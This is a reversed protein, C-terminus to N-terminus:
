LIQVLSVRAYLDIRKGYHHEWDLWRMGRVANSSFQWNNPLGFERFSSSTVDSALNMKALNFVVSPAYMFIPVNTFVQKNSHEHCVLCDNWSKHQSLCFLWTCTKCQPIYATRIWSTSIRCVPISWDSTSASCWFFVYATANHILIDQLWM